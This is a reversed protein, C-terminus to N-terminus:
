WVSVAMKYESYCSSNFFLYLCKVSNEIDGIALHPTRSTLIGLKLGGTEPELEALFRGGGRM